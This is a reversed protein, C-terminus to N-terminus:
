VGSKRDEKAFTPKGNICGLYERWVIRGKTEYVYKPWKKKARQRKIGM